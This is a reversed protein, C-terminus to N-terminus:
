IFIFNAQGLFFNLVFLRFSSVLQKYMRKTIIHWYIFELMYPYDCVYMVDNKQAVVFISITCFHSM